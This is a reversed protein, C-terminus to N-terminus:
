RLRFTDVVVVSEPKSWESVHELTDKARARVATVGGRTFAHRAAFLAGSGVFESWDGITDGWDFQFSVRRQLPHGAMTVFTASDGVPVTDPGSPRHPVYPGYEGIRVFLTDSWGTEHVADKSKARAGYTGTDEYVHALVCEAGSVMPGSWGSETGDGWAFLYSLSDSDPDFSYARFWISDGRQAMQPGDLLPVLPPKNRPCGAVVFLILM